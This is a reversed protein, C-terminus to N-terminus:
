AGSSTSVLELASRAVQQRVAEVTTASLLPAERLDEITAACEEPVRLRAGPWFVVRIGGGLATIDLGDGPGVVRTRPHPGLFGQDLARSVQRLLGSTGVVLVVPGKETLARVRALLAPALTAPIVSPVRVRSVLDLAAEPTSVLFPAEALRGDGIEPGKPDLPLFDLGTRQGLEEGLAAAHNPDPDVIPIARAQVLSAAQLLRGAAAPCLGLDRASGLAQELWQRHLRRLPDGAPEGAAAHLFVGSRPTIRVLGEKQLHRYAAAATKRDVAEMQAVHRVSPLRDGSSWCGLSHGLLIRDRLRHVVISGAKRAV